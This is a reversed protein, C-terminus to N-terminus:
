LKIIREIRSRWDVSRNRTPLSSTFTSQGAAPSKVNEVLWQLISRIDVRDAEWANTGVLAIIHQEIHIHM